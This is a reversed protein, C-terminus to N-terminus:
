SLTFGRLEDGPQEPQLVLPGPPVERRDLDVVYQRQVEIVRVIGAGIVVGEQGRVLLEVRDQLPDPVLPDDEPAPRARPPVPFDIVQVLPAPKVELALVPMHPLNNRVRINRILVPPPPTRVTPTPNTQTTCCGAKVPQDNTRDCDPGDTLPAGEEAHASYNAQWRARHMDLVVDNKLVVFQGVSASLYACCSLRLLSNEARMQNVVPSYIRKSLYDNLILLSTPIM